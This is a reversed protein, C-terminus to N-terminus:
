YYLLDVVKEMDGASLGKSKDMPPYKELLEIKEKVEVESYNAKFDDIVAKKDFFHFALWDLYDAESGAHAVFDSNYIMRIAHFAPMEEVICHQTLLITLEKKGCGCDHIAWLPSQFPDYNEDAKKGVDVLNLTYTNKIGKTKNVYEKTKALLERDWVGSIRDADIGMRNDIISVLEGLKETPVRLWQDFVEIWWNWGTIRAINELAKIIDERDTFGLHTVLESCNAQFGFEVEM